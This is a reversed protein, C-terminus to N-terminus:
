RNVIPSRTKSSNELARKNKKLLLTMPINWSGTIIKDGMDRIEFSYNM